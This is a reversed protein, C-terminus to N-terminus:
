RYQECYQIVGARLGVGQNEFIDRDMSKAMEVAKDYKNDHILLLLKRIEAHYPSTGITTCLEDYTTRNIFKAFTQMVKKVYVVAEDASWEILESSESYLESGSVTFAGVSRLSLPENKNEPMQLIDWLLDDMWLPKCAITADIFCHGDNEREFLFLTFFLEGKKSWVMYDKKKFGFEKCATQLIKPFAKKLERFKRQEERTM